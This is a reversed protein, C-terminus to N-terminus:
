AHSRAEVVEGRMLSNQTQLFVIILKQAAFQDRMNVAAIKSVLKTNSCNKSNLQARHLLSFSYSAFIKRGVCDVYQM